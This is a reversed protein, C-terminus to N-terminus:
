DLWRRLSLVRRSVCKNTVCTQMRGGLGSVSLSVVSLCEYLLGYMTSVVNRRRVGGVQSGFSSKVLFSEAPVKQMVTREKTAKLLDSIKKFSKSHAPFMKTLLSAFAPTSLASRGEDGAEVFLHGVVAAVIAAPLDAYM